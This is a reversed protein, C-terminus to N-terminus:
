ECGKLHNDVVQAALKGDYMGNFNDKLYKMLAGKNMPLTVARLAATLDAVGMQKPLYAELISREALLENVRTEAKTFSHEEDVTKISKRVADVADADTAERNGDKKAVAAIAGILNALKGAKFKDGAKLADERDQKIRDILTTM